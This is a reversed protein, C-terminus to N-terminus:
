GLHRDELNQDGRQGHEGKVDIRMHDHCVWDWIAHWVVRRECFGTRVKGALIDRVRDVPHVLPGYAGCLFEL